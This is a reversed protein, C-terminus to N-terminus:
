YISVSPLCIGAHLRRGHCEVTAAGSKGSTRHMSLLGRVFSASPTCSLLRPPCSSFPLPVCRLRPRLSARQMRGKPRCTSARALGALQSFASLRRAGRPPTFFSTRQPITFPPPPPETQPRASTTQRERGNVGMNPQTPLGAPTGWHGAKGVGLVSLGLDATRLAPLLIPSLRTPSSSRPLPSELRARRIHSTTTCAAATSARMERFCPETCARGHALSKQRAASSTSLLPFYQPV